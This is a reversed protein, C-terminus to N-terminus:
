VLGVAYGGGYAGYGRWQSLLDGDKCFCSVYVRANNEYDDLWNTICQELGKFDHEFQRKCVSIEDLAVRRLPQSAYLIESPDNMWRSNSAWLEGSQLIGLLGHATTYHYLIEPRNHHLSL